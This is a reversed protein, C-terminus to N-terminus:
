GDIIACRNRLRVSAGAVITQAMDGTRMLQYACSGAQKGPRRPKVALLPARGPLRPTFAPTQGRGAAM